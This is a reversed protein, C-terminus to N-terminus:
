NVNVVIPMTFQTSVSVGEKTAPTIAHTATVEELNDKLIDEFSQEPTTLLERTTDKVDIKELVIKGKNDIKINIIITDNIPQIVEFAEEQLQEQFFKGFSTEFCKKQEELSLTDACIGKFLPYTSVEDKNIESFKSEVISDLKQQKQKEIEETSPQPTKEKCSFLIFSVSLLWFFSKM